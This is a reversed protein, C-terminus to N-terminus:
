ANKRKLEYCKNKDWCDASKMNETLTGVGSLVCSTKVTREYGITSFVVFYNYHNRKM